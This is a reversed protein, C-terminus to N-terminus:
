EAFGDLEAILDDLEQQSLNTDPFDSPTYGIVVKGADGDLCHEIAEDLRKMYQGALEEMEESGYARGNYSWVMRLQGGSIMSDVSIEHHRRAAESRVRGSSEVAARWLRGESVTEDMQGLYNFSVGAREMEQLRAAVAASGLYRVLGYSMGRGPVARVQEKIRKMAQM